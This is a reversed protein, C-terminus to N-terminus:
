ARAEATVPAPLDLTEARHAGVHATKEWGRAGVIERAVARLSAGALVIQYFFTGILLRAYDIARPRIFYLRCFDRLGAIEFALTALTPVAPLFSILAVGVPVKIWLMSALSLPIAIGAFAQLFPMALTYRALARQRGAPLRRWEGKRLVQL